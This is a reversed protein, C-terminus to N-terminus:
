SSSVCMLVVHRVLRGYPCTLFNQSVILCSVGVTLSSTITYLAAMQARPCMPDVCRPNSNNSLASATFSRMSSASSHGSSDMLPYPQKNTTYTCVRGQSWEWNLRHLILLVLPITLMTPPLSHVWMTICSSILTCPLIAYQLLINLIVLWVRLTISPPLSGLWQSWSFIWETHACLIINLIHVCYETHACLALYMYM